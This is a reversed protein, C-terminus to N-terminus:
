TTKIIQQEYVDKLTHIKLLYLGESLSRIDIIDPNKEEIMLTGKFNFIEVKEVNIISDIAIFHTAPNPYIEIPAIKLM